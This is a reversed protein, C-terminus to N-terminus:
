LMHNLCRTYVSLPFGKDKRVHYPVLENEILFENNRCMEIAETFAENATVANVIIYDNNFINLASKCPNKEGKCKLFIIYLSRTVNYPRSM